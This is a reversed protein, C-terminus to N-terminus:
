NVRLRIIEEYFIGPDQCISTQIYSVNRITLM